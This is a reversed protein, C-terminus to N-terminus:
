KYIYVSTLGSEMMQMVRYLNYIDVFHMSPDHVIHEGDWKDDSWDDSQTNDYFLGDVIQDILSDIFTNCTVSFMRGVRTRASSFWAFVAACTVAGLCVGAAEAIGQVDM